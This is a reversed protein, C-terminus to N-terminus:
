RIASAPIEVTCIRKNLAGEPIELRLTLDSGKPPRQFVVRQLISQGKAIQKQEFANQVLAPQQFLADRLSVKVSPGPWTASHNEVKADNTVRLMVILFEQQSNPFYPAIQASELTVALTATIAPALLTPPPAATKTTKQQPANKAQFEDIVKKARQRRNAEADDAMKKLAAVRNKEANNIQDFFHKLVLFGGYGVALVLFGLLVGTHKRPEEFRVGKGGILKEKSRESAHALPHGAVPQRTARSRSIRPLPSEPAPPVSSLPENLANPINRTAGPKPKIQRPPPADDEALLDMMVDYETGEDLSVQADDAPGYEPPAYPFVSGCDDHPCRMRAGPRLDAPAKLPRTCKPCRFPTPPMRQNM